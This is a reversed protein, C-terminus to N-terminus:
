DVQSVTHGVACNLAWNTWPIQPKALPVDVVDAVFTM